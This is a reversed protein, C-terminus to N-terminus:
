SGAMKRDSCAMGVTMAHGKTGSEVNRMMAKRFCTALEQFQHKAPLTQRGVGLDYGVRIFHLFLMYVLAFRCRSPSSRLHCRANHLDIREVNHNEAAGAIKRM